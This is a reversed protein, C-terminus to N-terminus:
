QFIQQQYQTSKQILRGSEIYSALANHLKHENINRDKGAGMHSISQTTHMCCGNVMVVM